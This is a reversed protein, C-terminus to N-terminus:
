THKRTGGFYSYCYGEELLKNNINIGQDYFMCLERGYKDKGKFEVDVIKNNGSILNNFDRTKSSRSDNIDISIDTLLQILRNRAKLAAIHNVKDTLEPTDIGFLRAVIRIPKGEYLFVIHVTDGDYIHCIRCQTMPLNKFSFLERPTELLSM